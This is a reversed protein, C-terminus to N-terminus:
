TVATTTIQGVCHPTGAGGMALGVGQLYRISCLPKVYLAATAPSHQLSLGNYMATM